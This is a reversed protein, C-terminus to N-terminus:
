EKTLKRPPPNFVVQEATLKGARCTGILSTHGCSPSSYWIVSALYM